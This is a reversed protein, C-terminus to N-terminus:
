FTGSVPPIADNTPSHEPEEEEEPDPMSEPEPDEDSFLMDQFFIYM